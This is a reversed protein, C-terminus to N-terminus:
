DDLGEEGERKSQFAEVPLRSRLAPRWDGIPISQLRTIWGHAMAAAPPTADIRNKEVPQNIISPNTM